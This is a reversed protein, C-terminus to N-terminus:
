PKRRIRFNGGDTAVVYGRRQQWRGNIWVEVEIKRGDEHLRRVFSPRRIRYRFEIDGRRKTEYWGHLYRPQLADAVADYAEEVVEVPMGFQEAYDIISTRRTYENWVNDIHKLTNEFYEKATKFMERKM